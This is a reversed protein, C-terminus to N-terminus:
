PELKDVNDVYDLLESSHYEFATQLRLSLPLLLSLSLTYWSDVVVLAVVGVVVVTVVVPLVTCADTSFVVVASDGVVGVVILM